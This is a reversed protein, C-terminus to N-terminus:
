TFNPDMHVCMCMHMTLYKDVYKGNVVQYWNEKAHLVRVNKTTNAPLEWKGSFAKIKGKDKFSAPNPTSLNNTKNKNKLAVNLSTM